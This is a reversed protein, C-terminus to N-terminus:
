ARRTSRSTRCSASGAWITPATPTWSTPRAPNASFVLTEIGTLTDVEGGATRTITYTDDSLKAIVYDSRVGDYRAEDGTYAFGVVKGTGGSFTDNGAGGVFVDAGAGGNITDAQATGTFTNDGANGVLTLGTGVASADIGIAATGTANGDAAAIEM